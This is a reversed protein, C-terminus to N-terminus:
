EYYRVYYDELWPVTGLHWHPPVGWILRDRTESPRPHGHFAVIAASSAPAIPKRLLGVSYRFCLHRKFSLVRGEPWYAVGSAHASAFDQENAFEEMAVHPDDLFAALIHAQEKPDFSFVGTGAEKRNGKPVPRWDQGTNLFTVDQTVSFFPSLDGVVAMDLDIFLCRGLDHLDSHYLALKRWVGTRRIDAESLGIDPIDRIEISADLGSRDDTLCIFRLPGDTHAICARYLTNVERATFVTGWKICLITQSLSM